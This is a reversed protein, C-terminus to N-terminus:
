HSWLLAMFSRLGAVNHAMSRLLYIKGFYQYKFNTQYIWEKKQITIGYIVFGSVAETVEHAAMVSFLYPM